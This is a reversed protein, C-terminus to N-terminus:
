PAFSSGCNGNLYARITAWTTRTANAGIAGNVAATGTLGFMARILVLGDTLADTVGNGDVDVCGLPLPNGSEFAGIDTATGVTRPLGRQDTTLPVPNAGADIAPSGSGLAHTATPGGNKALPLL